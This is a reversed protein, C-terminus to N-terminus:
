RVPAAFRYRATHTARYATIRIAAICVRLQGRARLVRAPALLDLLNDLSDLSELAPRLDDLAQRDREPNPVLPGSMVLAATSIRNLVALYSLYADRRESLWRAHDERAYESRRAWAGAAASVLAGGLASVVAILVPASTTTIAADTM